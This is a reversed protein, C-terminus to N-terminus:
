LGADTDMTASISKVECDAELVGQAWLRLHGMNLRVTVTEGPMIASTAEIRIANPEPYTVIPATPPQYASEKKKNWFM